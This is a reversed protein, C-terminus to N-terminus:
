AAGTEKAVDVDAKLDVDADGPMAGTDDALSGPNVGVDTPQSGEIDQGPAIPRGAEPRESPGDEIGVVQEDYQSREDTM